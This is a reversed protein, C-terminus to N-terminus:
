PEQGERRRRRRRERSLEPGLANKIEKVLDSVIAEKEWPALRPPHHAYTPPPYGPGGGWGPYHPAPCAAPDFHLHIAEPAAPAAPPKQHYALPPPPDFAADPPPAPTRIQRTLTAADGRKGATLPTTPPGGLVFSDQAAPPYQKVPARHACASDSNIGPPSSPHSQHKLGLVENIKLKMDAASASAPYFSVSQQMEGFAFEADDDLLVSAAEVGPPPQPSNMPADPADVDAVPGPSFRGRRPDSVEAGPVSDLATVPPVGSQIQVDSVNGGCPDCPPATTTTHVSGAHCVTGEPQSITANLVISPARNLDQSDGGPILVRSASGSRQLSTAVLNQLVVSDLMEGAGAEGARKRLSPARQAQPSHSHYRPSAEACPSTEGREYPTSGSGPVSATETETADTEDDRALQAELLAIHHMLEQNDFQAKLLEGRGDAALEVLARRNQGWWTHEMLVQYYRRMLVAQNVGELIRVGALNRRPDRVRGPRRPPPLPAGTSDVRPPSDDRDYPALARVPSAHVAGGLTNVSTFLPPTPPPPLLAPPLEEASPEPGYKATLVHFLNTVDHGYKRAVADIEGLKNPNYRTYFRTLRARLAHYEDKTLAVAPEPGYRKVLTKFLAEERGLAGRLLDDVVLLKEPNYHKFFRVLRPRMPHEVVERGPRLAQVMWEATKAKVLDEGRLVVVPFCRVGAALLKSSVADRVDDLTHIAQKGVSLWKGTPVKAREFVGGPEIVTLYVGDPAKYAKFGLDQETEDVTVWCEVAKGAAMAM